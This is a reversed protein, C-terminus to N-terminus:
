KKKRRRILIAAVIVVVIVVLAAPITWGYGWIFREWPTVIVDLFLSRM